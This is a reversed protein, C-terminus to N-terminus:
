SNVEHLQLKIGNSTGLRGLISNVVNFRGLVPSFKIRIRKVLFNSCKLTGHDIDIPDFIHKSGLFWSGFNEFDHNKTKKKLFYKKTIRNSIM